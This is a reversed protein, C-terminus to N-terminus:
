KLLSLVSQSSQNAQALMATAAQSIIQQKALNTTETAYDTDLIRSRSAQMNQSSEALNNIVVDLRNNIAGSKALAASVTNIAADIATIAVNAGAITSIDVQNVKTGNDTGGFTGQRFGLKELNTIGNSGSEVKFANDSALTVQSIFTISAASTAAAGITIGTLGLSDAASNAGININRGDAATYEIGDGYVRATVGTQGSYQNISDVVGNRTAANSLTISVGNLMVTNTSNATFGEGRIVNPQATATVGTLATKRNIAAAIAIATTSAVSSAPGTNSATDDTALAQGIAVGNIIMSNGNLLGQLASTPATAAAPNTRKLSVFLATDAKYTGVRLGSQAEVDNGTVGDRFSVNIDRGDTTYLSYSGVTTGAAGIGVTAATAGSLTTVINRGDAATLTIGTDDSQTDTAVVGTLASKANIAAVASKRSISTSVTSTTFSDISVGNITIAATSAATEVAMGSTGSQTTVGAKAYVGSLNAVKNIAAAKAIASAAAAAVPSANDDSALSAGVSVGNILLAGASIADFSTDTAFTGGVSSLSARSGQGIDKTKMSSFGIKMSDGANVGTQITVNQASGDLLKINNHNTKTAIDDIQSKLQSVELQLSARDSDNMTGTGAQVALERMRQLIDGVNSMAGEATQTMSIADNTNQTAKAIGRIQSTMRTSIALGAADDKASNIKSGTSLREMAQGLKLGSARSSEQAVLASLNTNIVAM